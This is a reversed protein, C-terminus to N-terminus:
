DALDEFYRKQNVLLRVGENRGGSSEKSVEGIRQDALENPLSVQVM